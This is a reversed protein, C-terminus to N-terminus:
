SVPVARLAISYIGMRPGSVAQVVFTGQLVQLGHEYSLSADLSLALDKVLIEAGGYCRSEIEDSEVRSCVTLVVPESETHVQFEASDGFGDISLDLRVIQQEHDAAFTVLKDIDSTMPRILLSLSALVPAATTTPQASTTPQTTITPQTTTTAPHSTTTVTAATTNPQTATTALQTNTTVTTATATTSMTTTPGNRVSSTSTTARRGGSASCSVAALSAVVLFVTLVAAEVATSSFWRHRRGPRVKSWRDRETEPM